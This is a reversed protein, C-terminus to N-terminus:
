WRLRSIRTHKKTLVNIFTNQIVSLLLCYITPNQALITVCGCGHTSPFGLHTGAGWLCARHGTVLIGGGEAFERDPTLSVDHPVWPSPLRFALFYAPNQFLVSIIWYPLQFCSAKFVDKHWQRMNKIFACRIPLRSNAHTDLYIIIPQRM